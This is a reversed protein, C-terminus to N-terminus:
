YITSRKGNMRAKRALSLGREMVVVVVEMVGGFCKGYQMVLVVEM